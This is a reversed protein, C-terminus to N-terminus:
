SEGHCAEGRFGDVCRNSRESGKENRSHACRRLRFMSFRLEIFSAVWPVFHMFLM